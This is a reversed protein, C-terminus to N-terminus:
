CAEPEFGPEPLAYKAIRLMKPTAPVPECPAFEEHVLAIRAWNM